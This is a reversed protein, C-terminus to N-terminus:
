TKKEDEDPTSSVLIEMAIESQLDFPIWRFNVRNFKVAGKANAFNEWDILGYVLALEVGKGTMGTILRSHPDVIFEAQLYSMQRGDLGRLRFRTPLPNDIAPAAPIGATGDDDADAEPPREAIPTYWVPECPNLAKITM